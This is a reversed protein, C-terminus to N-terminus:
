EIPCLVDKLEHRQSAAVNFKEPLHGVAILMIVQYSEPIRTVRRYEKDKGADVCWNLPCAGLGQYTLAYLLSMSFLGGDIWAQNREKTGEFISLDCTVTLLVQALHGFGRNGNQLFLMEDIKKRDAVWWVKSGQRNCVSPSQQALRVAQEIESILIPKDSYHRVSRRASVLQSFDGKAAKIYEDRRVSKAGAVVTGEGVYELNNESGLFKEIRSIGSIKDSGPELAELYRKLVLCASAIQIDKGYAKEVWMELKNVLNDAVDVGFVQRRGTMSIGKELVHYHACISARLKEKTDEGFLRSSKGYRWTDYILNRALILSLKWSRVCSLLCEPLLKKVLARFHSM